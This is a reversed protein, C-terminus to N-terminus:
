APLAGGRPVQAYRDVRLHGGARLPEFDGDSTVLVADLRHAEAAIWLDNKGMRKGAKRAACDLARYADLLGRDDSTIDTVICRQLVKRLRENKDLPWAHEEAFQRAEAVSAVSVIPATGARPALLTANIRRGTADARALYILANTDLVLDRGLWPRESV